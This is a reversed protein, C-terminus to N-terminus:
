QLRRTFRYILDLERDGTKKLLEIIADILWERSVQGM